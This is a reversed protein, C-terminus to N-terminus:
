FVHLRASMCASNHWDRSLPAITRLDPRQQRAHAGLVQGVEVVQGHLQALDAAVRHAAWRTTYSPDRLEHLM